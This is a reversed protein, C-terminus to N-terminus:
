SEKVTTKSLYNDIKLFFTSKQLESWNRTQDGEKSCNKEGVWEKEPEIEIYNYTGENEIDKLTGARESNSKRWGQWITCSISITVFVKPILM